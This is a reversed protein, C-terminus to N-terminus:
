RRVSPTHTVFPQTFKPGCLLCVTVRSFYRSAMDELQLPIGTRRTALLRIEDFHLHPPVIGTERQAESGPRRQPPCSLVAM